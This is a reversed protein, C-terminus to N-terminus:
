NQFYIVASSLTRKDFINLLFYRDIKPVKEVCSDARSHQFDRKLANLNSFKRAPCAGMGGYGWLPERRRRECFNVSGNFTTSILM